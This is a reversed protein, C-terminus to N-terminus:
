SLWRWTNDSERGEQIWTRVFKEAVEPTMDRARHDNMTLWQIAQETNNALVPIGTHSICCVRYVRRPLHDRLEPHRWLTPPLISM